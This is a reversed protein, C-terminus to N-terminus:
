SLLSIIEETFFAIIESQEKLLRDNSWLPCEFTLALAIFDIDDLFEENRQKNKYYGKAITSAKQFCSSYEKEPIFDVILALEKKLKNFETKTIKSKKIIESSHKGIEKLAFEPAYLEVGEIGSITRLISSKWFFTFLVNSDVVFLM